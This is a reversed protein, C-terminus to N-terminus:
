NEEYGLCSKLITLMLLLPFDLNTCGFWSVIVGAVALRIETLMSDFVTIEPDKFANSNDSLKNTKKSVSPLSEDLSLGFCLVSADPSLALRKFCNDM